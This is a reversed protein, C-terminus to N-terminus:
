NEYVGLYGLTESPTPFLKRKQDLSWLLILGPVQVNTLDVKSIYISIADVINSYKIVVFLRWRDDSHLPLYTPTHSIWGCLWLTLFLGLGQTQSTSYAHKPFFHFISISYNCMQRALVARNYTSVFISCGVLQSQM